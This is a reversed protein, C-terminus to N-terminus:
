MHRANLELKATKEEDALKGLQTVQCRFITTFKKLTTIKGVFSGINTYAFGPPSFLLGLYSFVNAPHKM